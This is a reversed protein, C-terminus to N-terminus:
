CTAALKRLEGVADVFGQALEAPDELIERCSVVGVHMRGTYSAVTINLGLGDFVPGLPYFARMRAGGAYLPFNPGPINSVTVNFLPRVRNAVRYRSYLRVASGFVAPTAFEAWDQLATAGVAGAQDKASQSYQQVAQYRALPDAIDTGLRVLMSSIKNGPDALDGEGRVSIPVMAILSSDVIEERRKLLQRLAGASAALVVDNVKGGLKNKILKVDDLSVDAFGVRRHATIPANLSSRPASFPVPPPMMGNTDRYQERRAKRVNLVMELTDRAARVAKAPQRVMEGSAWKIMDVDNPVADPKWSDTEDFWTPEPEMDMFAVMMEAGSVGDILAHHNKSVVAVCGDALGEVFYFEWLPRTKDLPRGLIDATFESLEAMGGPAPLAARRVHYDLDFDPDEIWVPHHLGLPVNVVRRRWMPLLRLRNAVISRVRDFTLDEAGSQADLVIATAMHMHSSPTDLALFSADLGSLPQM